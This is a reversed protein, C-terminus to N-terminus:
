TTAGVQTRAQKAIQNELNTLDCFRQKRKLTRKLSDVTILTRPIPVQREELHGQRILIQVDSPKMDLCLCAKEPDVYDGHYTRYIM